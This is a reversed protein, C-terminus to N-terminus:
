RTYVGINPSLYIPSADREADEADALTSVAYQQLLAMRDKQVEPLELATRWSLNWIITDLWRQPVDITNTFAGIDEIQRHVVLYLCTFTDSPVPWLLMKQTLLRDLWYQRPTGSSFKNPLVNYDDKNIRALTIDQSNASVFLERIVLTGGGSAAVRFYTFARAPEIQFWSWERDVYAAAAVSKLTTWTVADDSGQFTLTLTASAGPLYGVVTVAQAEEFELQLNGNTSTQTCITDIDGDTANDATGGASSTATSELRQPTRIFANLVDVTGTPLAYEVQNEYLGLMLRHVRWLNVGRTALESLFLFLNTRMLTLHEPTMQAALIGCRRAAHEMISMVDITTQGTTGSTAM